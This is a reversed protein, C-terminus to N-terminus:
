TPQKRDDIAAERNERSSEPVTGEPEPNPAEVPPAGAARTLYPPESPVSGTAPLAPAQEGPQSGNLEASQHSQPPQNATAPSRPPANGIKRENTERELERMHEEFTSRLDGTARKFEAMVKGLNRALEPLKEPGFIVLAVIFVIILHPISLM